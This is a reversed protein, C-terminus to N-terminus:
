AAIDKDKVSEQSNESEHRKENKIIYHLLSYVSKNYATVNGGLLPIPIHIMLQIHMENISATPTKKLSFLLFHSHSQYRSSGTPLSKGRGGIGTQRAM